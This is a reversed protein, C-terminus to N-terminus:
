CLSARTERNACEGASHLGHQVNLGGAHFPDDMRGRCVPVVCAPPSQDLRSRQADLVGLARELGRRFRGAVLSDRVVIAGGM